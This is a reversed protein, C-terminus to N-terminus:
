GPRHAQGPKKIDPDPSNMENQIKRLVDPRPPVNFKELAAEIQELTIRNPM